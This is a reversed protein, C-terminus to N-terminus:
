KIIVINKERKTIENNKVKQKRFFNMDVPIYVPIYIIRERVVEKGDM